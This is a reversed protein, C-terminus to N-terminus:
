QCENTWSVVTMDAITEGHIFLSLCQGSRKYLLACQAIDMACANVEKYGARYLMKDVGFLTSPDPNKVPKWGHKLISTRASKFSQDKKLFTTEANALTSILILPIFLWKM